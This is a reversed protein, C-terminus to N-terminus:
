PEEDAGPADASGVVLCVPMHAPSIARLLRELSGADIDDDSADDDHRRSVTVTLQPLASGPFEGGPTNSWSTGGNEQIRISLGTVTALQEALGSVTGRRAHLDVSNAVLQRRRPEPWNSDLSMGLWGAVWELLDMPAYWPDLTAAINDLTSFIPALVEDFADCLALALPDGQQYVIPLTPGLPHPSVLKPVTGRM